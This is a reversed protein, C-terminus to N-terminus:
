AIKRSEITILHQDEQSLFRWFYDSTLNDDSWLYIKDEMKRRNLEKMMWAVWEPVLEPLGGSLVIVPPPNEQSLYLDILASPSLWGSCGIDAKLLSYPVYCYWCRFNCAAIQFVQARMLDTTPLMLARCVPDIPLPNQVWNANRKRHFHRIRGFGECNPPVTLDKEQESGSIRSILISPHQINAVRERYYISGAEVDTKQLSAV